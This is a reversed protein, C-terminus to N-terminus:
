VGTITETQTNGSVDTGTITFTVTSNNSSSSIIITSNLSSSANSSLAGDLTFNGAETLTENDVLGDSDKFKEESIDKLNKNFKVDDSKLGVLLEKGKELLNFTFIDNDKNSPDDSLSTEVIHGNMNEVFFVEADSKNIGDISTLNITLKENDINSNENNIEIVNDQNYQHNLAKQIVAIDSSTDSNDIGLNVKNYYADPRAPDSYLDYFDKEFQLNIHDGAGGVLTDAGLGGVLAEPGDNTGDIKDEGEDDSISGSKGVFLNLNRTIVTESNGDVDVGGGDNLSLSIKRSGNETVEPAFFALDKVLDNVIKLSTKGYENFEITFGPNDDYKISGIVEKIGDEDSLKLQIGDISYLSDKIFDIKETALVASGATSAILVTLVGGFFNNAEKDKIIADKHLLFPLDPNSFYTSDQSISSQDIYALDNINKVNINIDITQTKTNPISVDAHDRDITTIAYTLSKEGSVDPSTKIGINRALFDEAKNLDSFMGEDVLIQAQGEIDILYEVNSDEGPLKKLFNGFTNEELVGDNRTLYVVTSVSAGVNVGTAEDNSSIQTITKFFKTGEVTNNNVGTITETQTNGSVDTGTITFTVTSNNSSSSIIITSNLSSSANSSLAGDLTFNGAETLTENDVLGDSDKRPIGFDSQKGTLKVQTIHESTDERAVKVSLRIAPGDEVGVINGSSDAGTVELAKVGDAVSYIEVSRPIASSIAVDGAGGQSLTKFTLDLSSDFYQPTVLKIPYDIKEVEGDENRVVKGDYDLKDVYLGSSPINFVLESNNESPKANYLDDGVKLMIEKYSKDFDDAGDPKKIGIIWGDFNSTTFVNGGSTIGTYTGSSTEILTIGKSTDSAVDEASVVTDLASDFQIEFVDARGSVDLSISVSEEKSSPSNADQPNNKDVTTVVYTLSKEGSVDPSTKIGINRALFDEARQYNAATNELQSNADVIAKAQGAINIVYEVDDGKTRDSEVINPDFGNEMFEKKAWHGATEITADNGPNDAVLNSGEWKLGYFIDGASSAERLMLAYQGAFKSEEGSKGELATKLEALTTISENKAFNPVEKGYGGAIKLTLSLSSGNLGDFSQTRAQDLDLTAADTLNTGSLNSLVDSTFKDLPRTEVRTLYVVNSTDNPTDVNRSIGFDTQKGTLKVQTINESTDERAVKVSLRIAPGDEVGVINGSSDAGTVELAKVGDAVSYIPVSRPIATSIAVDGAGGQSLTKFTLDLSSDFYEPTVLKIDYGKGDVYLNSSPINFILESNNESPKANYLADDVKLMIENYSKPFADYKGDTLTTEPNKIGIIWGDFNSTTVPKGGSTIDTYTGDNQTEILTIGSSSAIDETSVSAGVNVG